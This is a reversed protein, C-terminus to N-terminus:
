FEAIGIEEQLFWTTLNFRLRIWTEFVVVFIHVIEHQIVPSYYHILYIIGEVYWLIPAFCRWRLILSTFRLTGPWFEQICYGILFLLLCVFSKPMQVSEHPIRDIHHMTKDGHILLNLLFVRWFNFLLQFLSSLGTTKLRLSYLRDYRTSLYLGHLKLYQQTECIKKIKEPM